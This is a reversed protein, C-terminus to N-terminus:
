GCSGMRGSSESKSDQFKRTGSCRCTMQGVADSLYISPATLMPSASPSSASVSGTTARDNDRVWDSIVTPLCPKNCADTSIFESIFSILWNSTGCRRASPRPSSACSASSWTRTASSERRGVRHCRLVCSQTHKNSCYRHTGLVFSNAHPPPSIPPCTSRSVVLRPRHPSTQGDRVVPLPGGNYKVM